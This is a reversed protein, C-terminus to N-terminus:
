FGEANIIQVGATFDLSGGALKEDVSIGNLVPQCFNMCNGIELGVIKQGVVEHILGDGAVSEM